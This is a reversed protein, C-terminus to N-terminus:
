RREERLVLIGVPAQEPSIEAVPHLFEDILDSQEVVLHEHLSGLDEEILMFNLHSKRYRRGPHRDSRSSVGDKRPDSGARPCPVPSPVDNFIEDRGCDSRRNLESWRSNREDRAPDWKEAALSRHEVSIPNDLI